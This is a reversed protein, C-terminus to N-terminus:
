AVFSHVGGGHAQEGMPKDKEPLVDGPDYYVIRADQGKSPTRSLGAGAIRRINNPTGQPLPSVM